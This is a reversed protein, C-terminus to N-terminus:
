DHLLDVIVRDMDEDFAITRIATEALGRPADRNLRILTAKRNRYALREFPYRIIGPTNFGVGLELCIVRAGEAKAVFSEYRASAQHWAADQVFHDSHRLNVDMDGGCVPCVPVLASPIKCDRTAALMEHVLEEDYYLKDHCAAACQLFAYDGQVEFVRESLFGAKAFQSEVNTTIVFYDVRSALRLLEKYLGTEPQAFRNVDIHRAWHAWLEEPTEFPYFSASYMDELGYKAIFDAFNETFRPGSYALGAASSLGAGAGILLYDANAIAEGAAEVRSEYQEM